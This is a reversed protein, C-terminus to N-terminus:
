PTEATETEAGVTVETTISPTPQPPVDLGGNKYALYLMLQFELTMNNLPKYVDMTMGASIKLLDAPTRITEKVITYASERKTGADSKFTQVGSRRNITVTFPPDFKGGSILQLIDPANPDVPGAPLMHSPPPAGTSSAQPPQVGPLGPQSHIKDYENAIGGPNYFGAGSNSPLTPM